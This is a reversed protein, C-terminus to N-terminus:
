TTSRKKLDTSLDAMFRQVWEAALERGMAFRETAWQVLEKSGSNTLNKSTLDGALRNRFDWYSIPHGELSQRRLAGGGTLSAADTGYGAELAKAFLGDATWAKAFAGIPMASVTPVEANVPTKSFGINTWRVRRILARKGNPGIDSSKELVEGGISPYWRQPPNTGTLSDWFENARQAAPGEGQYILGKVFTRKGSVEVQEPQGIEFFHYDPVGAKAGVQTIHDLDLNGFKMYYDASESLAKALVVENQQDLGENSAEVYVIRKGGETAPTAKLVDTISIHHLATM